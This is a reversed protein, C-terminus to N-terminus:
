ETPNIDVIESYEIWLKVENVIWHGWLVQVKVIGVDAM